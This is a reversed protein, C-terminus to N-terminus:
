GWRYCSFGYRETGGHEAAEAIIESVAPKIIQTMFDTFRCPTKTSFADELKDGSKTKIWLVVRYRQRRKGPMDFKTFKGDDDTTGEFVAFPKM